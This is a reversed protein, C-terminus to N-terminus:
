RKASYRRGKWCVQSSLRYERASNLLLLGLLGAGLVQYKALDTDFGLRGLNQRYARHRVVAVAFCLLAALLMAGSGFGAAILLCGALGGVPALLDFAWAGAFSKLMPWLKRGYLLYLNKSWGQWMEGFSLYMRTRVWRPGPLFIIRGGAAKVRRALEVDELIESRVGSHGGVGNYVKRRILLYQGNAAAASSAPNSVEDFRYLRALQVFVMPIVSKEWWAIMQQGPSLSVLDAREAEARDLVAELSGPLHETDADTFLLWEGAAAEAGVAAAHNKGIWGEPLTGLHISRLLRIEKELRELIAGTGDTSEDDVAVIEQVGKQASVSRVVREINEEENRAPIIVSVVRRGREETAHQGAALHISATM